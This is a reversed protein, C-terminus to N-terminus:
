YRKKGRSTYKSVSTTVWIQLRWCDINDNVLADAGTGCYIDWVLPKFCCDGIIESDISWYPPKTQSTWATSPTCHSSGGVCSWEAAPWSLPKAPPQSTKTAETVDPVQSLTTQPGTHSGWTDPLEPPGVTSTWMADSANWSLLHSRAQGKPVLAQFHCMDWGGCKDTALESELLPSLNWRKKHSTSTM